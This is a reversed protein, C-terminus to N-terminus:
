WQGFFVGAKKHTATRQAVYADDVTVRTKRLRLWDGLRQEMERRIHAHNEDAGLDRREKPDNALDFLMPRFDQWWVYKWRDTRVMIARCEGPKRKLILRAQRFSYDLESFVADRWRDLHIRRLLPVGNSSSAARRTTRRACGNGGNGLVSSPTSIRCTVRVHANM